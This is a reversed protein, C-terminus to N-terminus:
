QPQAVGLAKELLGWLAENDQETRKLTGELAAAQTTWKVIQEELVRVREQACKAGVEDSGAQEQLLKRLTMIYSLLTDIVTHIGFDPPSSHQVLRHIQLLAASLELGFHVM